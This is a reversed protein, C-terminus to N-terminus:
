DYFDPAHKLRAWQGPDHGFILFAGQKDRADRLRKISRISAEPSWGIGPPILLDLNAQMYIADGCLIFKGSKELNVELSQHGQSHGPTSRLMLKGDGFIDYDGEIDEFNLPCDFDKRVYGKQYVEPYFASRIEIKQVIIKSEPFAQLGGAHDFHLHTMVVFKIDAPKYGLAELQTAIRQSEAMHLTTRKAILGVTGEPDTLIGQNMGTDVLVNGKPHTILFAPVPITIKVGEGRGPTFHEMDGTLAGMDLLYLKMREMREGETKSERLDSETMIEM